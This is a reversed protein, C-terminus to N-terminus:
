IYVRFHTPTHTEVIVCSNICMFLHSFSLLCHLRPIFTCVDYDFDYSIQGNTSRWKTHKWLRRKGKVCKAPM